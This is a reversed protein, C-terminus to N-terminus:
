KLLEDYVSVRAVVQFYKKRRDSVDDRPKKSFVISFESGSEIKEKILPNQRKVKELFTEKSTFSSVDLISVTPLKSKINVIENRAFTDDTLLPILKERNETSPLDVYVDGNEKVVSKTVQISNSTAIEQVKDINVPVGNSKICFSAKMREVRSPNSWPPTSLEETHQVPAAENDAKFSQFETAM